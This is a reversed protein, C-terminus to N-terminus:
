HLAAAQRHTGPAINRENVLWSLFDRIEAAGMELPHRKGSWLIFMKTWHWYAQETRPSYNLTRITERVQRELQGRQPTRADPV